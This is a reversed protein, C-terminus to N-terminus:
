QEQIVRCRHQEYHPGAANADWNAVTSTGASCCCHPVCSRWGFGGTASGRAGEWCVWEAVTKQSRFSALDPPEPENTIPEFAPNLPLDSELIPPAPNAFVLSRRCYPLLMPQLRPSIRSRPAFTTGRAGPSGLLAHTVTAFRM